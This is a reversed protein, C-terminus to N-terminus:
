AAVVELGLFVAFVEAQFQRVQHEGLFGTEIRRNPEVHADTFRAAVAEIEVLRFLYDFLENRALIM